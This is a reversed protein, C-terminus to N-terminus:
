EGIANNLDDMFAEFENGLSEKIEAMAEPTMIQQVKSVIEKNDLGNEKYLLVLTVHICVNETLSFDEGHEYENLVAPFVQKENFGMQIFREFDETVYEKLESYEFIM